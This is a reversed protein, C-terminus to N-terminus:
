FEILNIKPSANERLLRCKQVLRERGVADRSPADPHTNRFYVENIIALVPVEFLITQYWNGQISLAFGNQASISVQDARLRLNKLADIYSPNLYRINRLYAAEADTLALGCFADVERRIESAYPTLDVDPTRCQFTYEVQAFPFKHFVVQQMTFKYLDTDLLSQIIM